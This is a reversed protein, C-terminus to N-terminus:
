LHFSVLDPIGLAYYRFDRKRVNVKVKIIPIPKAPESVPLQADGAVCGWSESAPHQRILFARRREPLQVISAVKSYMVYICYLVIYYM